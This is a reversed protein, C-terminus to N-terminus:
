LAAHRAAGLLATRDNLIVKVPISEMLKRYRGKDVISELFVPEKLKPLIKPAIGGGVYVGGTALVKLALNGAEAGYSSVFRELALVCLDSSKEQAATAIVASPDERRLRESLWEPESGRGSDRLFQYFNLLGPGSVVREYSVHGFRKRLHLLLDAELEDRPAFDAHGGESAFPRHLKGDWHLAAEGLGTGAAIVARSGQEIPAGDQLVAFDAVGLVAIGYATSELDNLLTVTELGLQHSLQRADVVWTLNPTEVRGQRVPGAIGFCAAEVQIRNAGLFESLIAELGPYKASAFNTQVRSVLRGGEVEFLAVRTSTGGIDGALIM